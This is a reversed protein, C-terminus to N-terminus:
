NKEKIKKYLDYNFKSFNQISEGNISNESVKAIIRVKNGKEVKKLKEEDFIIDLNGTEDEVSISDKEKKLVNGIISIRIDQPLIESIKKEETVFRRFDDFKEQM